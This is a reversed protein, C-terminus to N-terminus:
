APAEGVALWSAVFYGVGYPAADYRLEARWRTPEILRAMADWLPVGACLLEAGIGDPDIVSDRLLRGDGSRLAAAVREDFPQAREDFHGPAAASRRATGDGMVVLALEGSNDLARLADAAPSTDFDPGVQVALADARAGITDRILWAGVTLPLPLEPAGLVDAAGLAVTLPVGYGAFSGRAGSEHVQSNAGVGLVVLRCNPAAVAAIAARCAARLEALEVTTGTGVDPVLLPPHPCFAVGRIM